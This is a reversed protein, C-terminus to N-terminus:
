GGTAKFHAALENISLARNYIAVHALDGTMWQTTRAGRGMRWYLAAQAQRATLQTTTRLAGDRYIYLNTGDFIFAGHHWNGDATSAVDQPANQPGGWCIGNLLGTTPWSSLSANYTGTPTGTTSSNLEVMVGGTSTSQIRYWLEITFPTGYVVTEAVTEVLSGGTGDFHASGPSAGWPDAGGFIVVGYLQATKSAGSSDAATTSHLAENLKWYAAPASQLVAASYSTNLNTVQMGAKVNMAISNTPVGRGTNYHQAIETPTLPRNYVAMHSLSGLLSGWQRNSYGLRWYGMPMTFPQQGALAQQARLSGNRYIQGTTTAANYVYVLHYWQNDSSVEGAGAIGSGTSGFIYGYSGGSWLGTTASRVANNSPNNAPSAVTPGEPLFDMFGTGITNSRFWCEISFSNPIQEQYNRVIQNSAAAGTGTVADTTSWPDTAGITLTSGIVTTGGPPQTNLRWYLDPNSSRVASAYLAATPLPPAATYHSIIEAYPLARGYAAVFCLNGMFPNAAGQSVGRGVHWCGQFPVPVTANTASALVGDVYFSWTQIGDYTAAIHHWGGDGATAPGIQPGLVSAGGGGTGSPPNVRAFTNVGVGPGQLLISPGYSPNSTPFGTTDVNFEMPVSSISGTTAPNTQMWFEMTYAGGRPWPQTPNQLLHSINPAAGTGNFYAARHGGWPDLATGFAVTGFVKADAPAVNLPWFLQNPNSAQVAAQYVSWGDVMAVSLSSTAAMNPGNSWWDDPEPDLISESVLDVEPFWDAQSTVVTEGTMIVTAQVLDDATVSMDGEGVLTVSPTTTIPITDPTLTTTAQMGVQVAVDPTLPPPPLPSPAPTYVEGTFEFIWATDWADAPGAVLPSQGVLAYVAQLGQSLVTDAPANPDFNQRSPVNFLVETGPVLPVMEVVQREGDLPGDQLLMMVPTGVPGVHAAAFLTSSAALNVSVVNLASTAALTVTTM